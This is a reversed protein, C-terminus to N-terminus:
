AGAVQRCQVLRLGVFDRVQNFKEQDSGQRASIAQIRDALEDDLLCTRIWAALEQMDLRPCPANLLVFVDELSYLSVTATGARQHLSGGVLRHDFDVEQLIRLAIDKVPVNLEHM